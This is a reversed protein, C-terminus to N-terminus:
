APVPVRAAPHRLRTSQIARVAGTVAFCVTIEVLVHFMFLHRSTETADMLTAISFEIAAMAVAGLCIWALRSRIALCVVAVALLWLPMVWPAREIMRGRLGSWYGPAQANPPRGSDETYNGLGSPQISGANERLDRWLIAATRKPRLAYFRALRGFSVRGALYEDFDFSTTPAGPTYAHMGVYALNTRDLNLAALDQAADPSHPTLKFFILSFIPDARYYSHSVKIFVFAAALIALGAVLANRRRLVAWILVAVPLALAAHQVKVTVLLLAACIFGAVRLRSAGRVALDTLAAITLLLGTFAAADTFFSNCYALYAADGFIFAAALGATIQTAPGLPQLAMMLWAFALILVSLHVLGMWRIDFWGGSQFIRALRDATWAFVAESSYYKSDWAHEPGRNYDRPVYRFHSTDAKPGLQWPGAIKAFDGNDAMGIIPPVFLRWGFYCLCLAVLVGGTRSM